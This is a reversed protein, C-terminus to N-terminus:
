RREKAYRPQTPEPTSSLIALEDEDLQLEQAALNEHLRTVRRTGPIAMVVSSQALLWALVVQGPTVGRRAAVARVHTLLSQNESLADAAFMPLRTRFDDSALRTDEDISGTLFGRGLPAYAVFAAGHAECWPVVDILQVRRFLSLESQVATVPHIASALELEAVGVESLGLGGLKGDTVLEALAGWSEELPVVPDVRHLYYLDLRELGLRHLTEDVARRLHVPSGDLRTANGSGTAVLGGKSAVVVGAHDQEGLVDGLLRENTFPGYVDATDLVVAAEPRGFALAAELVAHPDDSAADSGYSFSMGMCGLGIRQVTRSGIVTTLSTAM